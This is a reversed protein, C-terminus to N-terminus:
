YPGVRVVAFIVNFDLVGGFNLLLRGQLTVSVWYSAPDDETGM